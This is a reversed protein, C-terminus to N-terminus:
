PTRDFALMLGSFLIVLLAAALAVTLIAAIIM